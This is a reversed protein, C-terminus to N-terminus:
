ARIPSSEAMSYSWSLIKLCRYAVNLSGHHWSHCARCSSRGPYVGYRECCRCTRWRLAHPHSQSFTQRACGRPFCKSLFDHAEFSNCLQDLVVPSLYCFQVVGLERVNNQILPIVAATAFEHLPGRLVLLYENGKATKVRIYLGFCLFRTRESKTSAHMSSLVRNFSAPLGM